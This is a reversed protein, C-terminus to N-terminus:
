IINKKLKFEHGFVVVIIHIIEDIYNLFNLNQTILTSIVRLDTKSISRVDLLLLNIKM